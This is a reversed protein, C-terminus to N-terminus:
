AAVRASSMNGRIIEKYTRIEELLPDLLLMLSLTGRDTPKKSAFYRAGRLLNEVDILLFWKEIKTQIKRTPSIEFFKPHLKELTDYTDLLIMAGHIDENDICVGAITTIREFFERIKEM